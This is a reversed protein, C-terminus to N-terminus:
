CVSKVCDPMLGTGKDLFGLTRLTGNMYFNGNLCLAVEPASSLPEEYLVFGCFKWELPLSM